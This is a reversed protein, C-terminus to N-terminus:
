PVVEAAPVVKHGTMAGNRNFQLIIHSGDEVSLALLVEATNVPDIGFQVGIVHPAADLGLVRLDVAQESVSFTSM